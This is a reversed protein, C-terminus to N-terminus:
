ILDSVIQNFKDIIKRDFQKLYIRTTNESTHGLGESIIATPVGSEKALTAWTHRAVYTTLAVDTDILKAIKKLQRNISRLVAKYQKYAKIYDTETIQPFLYESQNTYKRILKKLPTTLGIELQQNIKHRSYSIVGNKIQKKKLFIIDVFSMGRSYFSFLFIDRALDIKAGTTLSLSTIKRMQEQSLARKVTQCPKTHVHKFPYENEWIHGEALAYNYITRFNRMYYCITNPSIGTKFLYLEYKKVFYRNIESLRIDKRKAFKEISVRTSQYANIIGLKGLEQKEEIRTDIFTSLFTSSDRLQYHSIIDSITFAKGRLSLKEVIETIKKKETKSWKNIGQIMTRTLKGNPTYYFTEKRPDFCEEAVQFPSYVIKKKRQYIVQLVLPYGGNRLRHSKNLRLKISIM